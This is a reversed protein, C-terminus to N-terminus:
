AEVAEEKKMKQQELFKDLLEPAKEFASSLGGKARTSIFSIEAGRSVLFGIPEIGIGGGLGLGEGHGQKPDNGEGGGSGFGMGLRIVPVCNFEGLQFQKGIVTDTKAESKLFDTLKPLMEELNIKM